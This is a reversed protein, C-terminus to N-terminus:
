AYALAPNEYNSRRLLKNLHENFQIRAAENGDVIATDAIAEFNLQLDAADDVTMSMMGELNNDGFMQRIANDTFIVPQQQEQLKNIIQRQKRTLLYGIASFANANRDPEHATFYGGLYFSIKGKQFGDKIKRIADHFSAPVDFGNINVLNYKVTM